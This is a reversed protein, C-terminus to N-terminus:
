FNQITVEKSGTVTGEITKNSSANLIRITDGKAGQELAKGQTTLNLGNGNFLVTVLEGRDILKQPQLDGRKLPKGAALVRRPTLGVLDEEKLIVDHNLSKIPMDLFTLDYAGILAGNELPDKLVPVSVLRSLTGAIALTQLPNAKSPAALVAEFRDEGPVLKLSSVEVTQSETPPLIMQTANDPMLVAFNGEVGQATIENKLATEIMGQDIITASRKIVVQDNSTAPSWNIGLANSIRMLTVANLTMDKGPQPAAGLVHDADHDLGSFVDGLTIVDGTVVSAPKLTVAFVTHPLLAAVGLIVLGRIIYRTTHIKRM